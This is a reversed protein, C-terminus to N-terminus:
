SIPNFPVRKLYDPSPGLQQRLESYTLDQHQSRLAKFGPGLLGSGDSVAPGTGKAVSGGPPFAFLSLTSLGVFVTGIFLSRKWGASQLAAM